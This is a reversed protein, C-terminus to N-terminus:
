RNASILDCVVMRHDSHVTRRAVVSAPRFHESTWIQDVRLVPINNALTNGWGSGRERFTDRLRSRLARLSIDGGPMNFDGGVILPVNPPISEIRRLIWEIQQQQKLRNQHQKRWCEPSWLDISIDYPLLRVVIVEATFGAALDVKAHTFPINWPEQLPFPKIRGRVLMSVDPGSLLEFDTGFKETLAQLKPRVPSEQFLVVDPQYKIVEAAADENGGECNLSIVRIAKGNERAAQWEPSPWQQSRVLSSLEQVFVVAYLIWLVTVVCAPLKRRRTWGILALLLGPILWLWRPFVLLAAWSDPQFWYALTVILWLLASPGLVLVQFWFSARSVSLKRLVPLTM